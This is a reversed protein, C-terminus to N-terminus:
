IGLQVEAPYRARALLTSPLRSNAHRAALDPATSDHDLQTHRQRQSPRAASSATTPLRLRLRHPHPHPHSRSRSRLLGPPRAVMRSPIMYTSDTYTLTNQSPPLRATTAFLHFPRRRGLPRPYVPPVKQVLYPALVTCTGSGPDTWTSPPPLPNCIWPNKTAQEANRVSYPSLFCPCSLYLVPAVLASYFRGPKVRIGGM